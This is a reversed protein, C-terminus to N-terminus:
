AGLPAFGTAEVAFVIGSGKEAFCPARRIAEVIGGAKGGDALIVLVDKEPVLKVGFFAADGESATGRAQLVTGGGAGARRAAALADDAYDRNVIAVVAMCKGKDEMDESWYGNGKEGGRAFSAVAAQFAVGKARRGAAERRIALAVNGTKDGPALSLVIDKAREGLGLFQMVAGPATGRGLMVTGGGAGAGIAAKAVSEGAGRAVIAVTVTWFGSM